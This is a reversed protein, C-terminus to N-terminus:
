AFTGCERVTYFKLSLPRRLTAPGNVIAAWCASLKDFVADLLRRSTLRLIERGFYSSQSRQLSTASLHTPRGVITDSPNQPNWFPVLRYRLCSRVGARLFSSVTSQVRPSSEYRRRSSAARFLIKACLHFQERRGTLTTDRQLCVLSVQPSPSHRVYDDPRPSM